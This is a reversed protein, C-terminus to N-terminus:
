LSSKSACHRGRESSCGPAEHGTGRAEDLARNRVRRDVIELALAVEALTRQLVYLWGVWGDLACRKVILTYLFVLIPAPWGM